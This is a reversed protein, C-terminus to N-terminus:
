PRQQGVGGAGPKGEPMSAGQGLWIVDQPQYWDTHGCARCALEIPGELGMPQGYDVNAAPIEALFADECEKCTVQFAGVLKIEDEGYGDAYGCHACTVPFPLLRHDGDWDTELRRECSRCNCVYAPM